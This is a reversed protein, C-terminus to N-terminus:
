NSEKEESALSRKRANTLHLGIVPSQLNSSNSKPSTLCVTQQQLSAPCKVHGTCKQTKAQNSTPWLQLHLSIQSLIMSLTEFSQKQHKDKPIDVVYSPRREKKHPVPLRRLPINCCGFDLIPNIPHQELVRPKLGQLLIMPSANWPVNM